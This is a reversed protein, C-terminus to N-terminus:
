RSDGAPNLAKLLGDGLFNVSLVTLMIALGPPVWLWPTSQVYYLGQLENLMTGWTSTPPLVGLGLFSLSSETLIAGGIGFATSVIVPALTNPILHRTVLMWDSVGMSKAAVVYDMERLSFVQARVLRYLGTWGLLGIILMTNLLSPGLVSAVTIILVFSPFAMLTDVLRGIVSDVWGGYYGSVVGLLTGLTTSITVAVFAVVLSVQGGFITRSLVDRGALDTGLLHHASPPQEAQSLDVYNPDHPAVWRAFIAVLVLLGVVVGGIPGLRHQKFRRWVRSQEVAPKQAIAAPAQPKSVAVAVAGSNATQEDGSQGQGDAIPLNVVADNIGSARISSRTSSM